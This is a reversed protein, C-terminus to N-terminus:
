AEESHEIAMYAPGVVATAFCKAIRDKILSIDEVPIEIYADKAHEIAKQIRRALNWRHLKKAGPAQEDGQTDRLLAEIAVEGLIAEKEPNDADNGAKMPAGAHNILIQSYFFKM